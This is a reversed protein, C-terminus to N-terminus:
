NYNWSVTNIDGDGSCGSAAKAISLPLTGGATTGTNDGDPLAEAAATALTGSVTVGILGSGSGSGWDATSLAVCAEKGLGTFTVFFSRGDTSASVFAGGNFSNYAKSAVSAKVGNLMETGIAGM